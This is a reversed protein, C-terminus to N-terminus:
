YGGARSGRAARDTLLYAVAFAQPHADTWQDKRARLHGPSALYGWACRWRSSDPGALDARPRRASNKSHGAGATSWKENFGRSRTPRLPLWNTGRPWLKGSRCGSNRWAAAAADPPRRSRRDSQRRWGPISQRASGAH